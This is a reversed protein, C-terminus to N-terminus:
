KWGTVSAGTGVLDRQSPTCAAGAAGGAGVTRTQPRACRQVGCGVRRTAAWALQTYHGCARGPNHRQRPGSRRVRRERELVDPEPDPRARVTSREDDVPVVALARFGDRPPESPVPGRRAEVHDLRHDAGIVAQECRDRCEAEAIREDTCQAVLGREALMAHFDATVRAPPSATM